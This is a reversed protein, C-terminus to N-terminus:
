GQDGFGGEQGADDIANFRDEVGGAVSQDQAMGSRQSFPLLLMQSHEPAFPGGAQDQDRPISRPGVVRGQAVPINRHHRDVTHGLAQLDIKDAGVAAFAHALGGLVQERVTVAIDGEDVAGRPQAHGLFPQAPELVSEPGRANGAALREEDVAIKALGAAAIGM